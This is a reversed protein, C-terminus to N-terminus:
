SIQIQRPQAEPTKPIQLTLVGNEARASIQNIDINKPLTLTREFRGFSREFHTYFSKESETEEKSEKVDSVRKREGSVFLKSDHVEIKIDDKTMGPIDFQISFEKDSEQVDLAPSFAAEQRYKRLAPTSVRNQAFDQFLTEFATNEPWLSLYRM